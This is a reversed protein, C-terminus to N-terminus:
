KKKNNSKKRCKTMDTATLRKEKYPQQSTADHKLSAARRNGGFLQQILDTRGIRRLTQEIKRREEPKYWFFFQRQALKEAP